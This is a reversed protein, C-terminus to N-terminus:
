HTAAHAVALVQPLRRLAAADGEEAADPDPQSLQGRLIVRAAAWTLSDVHRPDLEIAHPAPLDLADPIHFISVGWLLADDMATAWPHHDALANLPHTASMSARSLDGVRTAVWRAPAGQEATRGTLLTHVQAAVLDALVDDDLSALQPHTCCARPPQLPDAILWQPTLGWRHELPGRRLELDSAHHLYGRVFRAAHGWAVAPVCTPCLARTLREAVLSDAVTRPDVAPQGTACSARAHWVDRAAYFTRPGTAALHASVAALTEHM